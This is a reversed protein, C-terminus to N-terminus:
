PTISPNICVVKPKERSESDAKTNLGTEAAKQRARESCVSLVDQRRILLKLLITETAHVLAPGYAAPNEPYIRAGCCRWWNGGDAIRTHM